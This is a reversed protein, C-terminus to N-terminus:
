APAARKFSEANRFGVDIDRSGIYVRSAQNQYNENVTFFVAWGGLICVPEELKSIVLKLYKYSTETEIDKYM